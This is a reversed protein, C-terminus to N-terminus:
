ISAEGQLETEKQMTSMKYFCGKIDQLSISSDIFTASFFILAKGSSYFLFFLFGSGLSTANHILLLGRAGESPPSHRCVTYVRDSSVAACSVSLV